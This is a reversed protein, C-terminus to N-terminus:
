EFGLLYGQREELPWSEATPTVAHRALSGSSRPLDETFALDESDM